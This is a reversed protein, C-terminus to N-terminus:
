ACSCADLASRPRRRAVPGGRLLTAQPVDHLTRALLHQLLMVAICLAKECNNRQLLSTRSLSAQVHARQRSRAADACCKLRLKTSACRATRTHCAPSNSSPSITVVHAALQSGPTGPAHMDTSMLPRARAHLDPELVCLTNMGQLAALSDTLTHINGQLMSCGTWPAAPGWSECAHCSSTSHQLMGACHAWSTRSNMHVDLDMCISRIAHISARMQSHGCSCLLESPTVSNPVMAAATEYEQHAGPAAM